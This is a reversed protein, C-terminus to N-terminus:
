SGDSSWIDLIHKSFHLSFHPAIPQQPETTNQSGFFMTVDRLDECGPLGAGSSRRYVGEISVRALGSRKDGAQRLSELGFYLSM